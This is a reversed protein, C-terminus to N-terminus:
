PARKALVYYIGSGVLFIAVAALIGGIIINGDM